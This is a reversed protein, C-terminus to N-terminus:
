TLKAGLRKKAVKRRRLQSGWGCLSHGANFGAEKGKQLLESWM